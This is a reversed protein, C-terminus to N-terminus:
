RAHRLAFADAADDWEHDVEEAAEAPAAGEAAPAGDTAPTAPLEDETSIPVELDTATM